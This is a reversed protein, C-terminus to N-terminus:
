RCDGCPKEGMVITEHAKKWENRIQGKETSLRESLGRFSHRSQLCLEFIDGWSRSRLDEPQSPFAIYHLSRSIPSENQSRLYYFVRERKSKIRKPCHVGLIRTGLHRLALWKESAVVMANLPVDPALHRRKGMHFLTAWWRLAINRISSLCGVKFASESPEM